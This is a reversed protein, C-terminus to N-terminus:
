TSFVIIFYLFLIYMFLLNIAKASEINNTLSYINAELVWNAKSYHDKWISYVEMNYGTNKYYKKTFKESSEYVPNWGNKLSSVADKHYTNGDSSRDFIFGSILISIFLILISVIISKKFDTVKLKKRLLYYVITTIVISLIFNIFSISIHLYFLFFTVLLSVGMLMLIYISSEYITNKIKNM